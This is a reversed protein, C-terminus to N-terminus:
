LTDGMVRRQARRLEPQESLCIRYAQFFPIDDRLMRAEALRHIAGSIRDSLALAGQGSAFKGGPEWNAPDMTEKKLNNIFDGNPDWGGDLPGPQGADAAGARKERQFFKDRARDVLDGLDPFNGASGAQTTTSILHLTNSADDILVVVSDGLRIQSTPIPAIIGTPQLRGARLNPSLKPTIEPGGPDLTIKIATPPDILNGPTISSVWGCKKQLM